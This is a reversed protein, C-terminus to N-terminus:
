SNYKKLKYFFLLQVLLMFFLVQFYDFSLKADNGRVLIAIYYNVYPQILSYIVGIIFALRYSQSRLSVIFEDEIKEKAMSVLLMGILLTNSLFPKVWTPEEVFKKAIMLLFAIIVISWGVKKFKNPLQFKNMMELRRREKDCLLDNM